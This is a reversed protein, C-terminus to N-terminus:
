ARSAAIVLLATLFGAFALGSSALVIALWGNMDGWVRTAVTRSPAPPAEVPAPAPQRAVAKAKAARKRNNRSRPEAM